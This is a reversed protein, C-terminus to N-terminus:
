ENTPCPLFDYDLIMKEQLAEKLRREDAAYAEQGALNKLEYPDAKLDYLEVYARPSTFFLNVFLEPLKKAENLEVIKKWGPDKSSDVPSYKQWPTYNLILKFRDDRISRALDYGSSPETPTLVAAGHPGRQAFVYRRAEYPQGKIAPLFSRGSMNPRAKLGAADLLTPTLDEGSVLDDVVSATKAVGPWRVLLPVNLGREHLAGKGRPLAIGNDGTFVILTNDLVGKAALLDFVSKVLKDMNSIEDCHRALDERLEPIDPWDPPIVMDEPKNVKPATWPHHPDNFNIWFFFPKGAPRQDLFETTRAIVTAQSSVDEFDVRGKMTQLNYKEWVQKSVKDTSPIWGDIHHSRGCVGTYYGGESRLIEPLTVEDRPLPSSFRGVRAAAPSKGTMFAVRSPVCQPAATFARNFRVGESALRDLNPTAIPYGYCGLYPASHDDSLLFIINPRQPEKAAAARSVSCLLGPLLLFSAIIPSLRPMAIPLKM